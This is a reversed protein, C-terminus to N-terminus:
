AGSRDVLVKKAAEVQVKMNEVEEASIFRGAKSYDFTIKSM